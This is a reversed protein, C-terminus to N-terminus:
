FVTFDVTGMLATLINLIGVGQAALWLHEAGADILQTKSRGLQMDFGVCHRVVREHKRIFRFDDGPSIEVRLRNSHGCVVQGEAQGFVTCQRLPPNREQGVCAEALKWCEQAFVGSKVRAEHDGLYRCGGQGTFVFAKGM